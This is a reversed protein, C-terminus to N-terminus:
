RVWGRHRKCCVFLSPRGMDILVGDQIFAKLIIGLWLRVRCLSLVWLWVLVSGVEFCALGKVM